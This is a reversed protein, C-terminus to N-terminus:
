KKHLNYRAIPSPKKRTFIKGTEVVREAVRYSLDLDKNIPNVIADVNLQTIDVALAIMSANRAPGDTHSTAENVPNVTAGDTQQTAVGAESQSESSQNNSM